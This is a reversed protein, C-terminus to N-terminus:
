RKRQAKPVVRKKPAVAPATEGESSSVDDPRQSSGAAQQRELMKKTEDLALSLTTKDMHAHPDALAAGISVDKDKAVRNKHQRIADSLKLKNQNKQAYTKGLLILEASCTFLAKSAATQAATTKTKHITKKNPNNRHTPKNPPAPKPVPNPVPKAETKPATALVSKASAKAPQKGVAKASAHAPQKGIAKPSPAGLRVGQQKGM